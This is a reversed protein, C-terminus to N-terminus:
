PRACIVYAAATVAGTINLGVSWGTPKGGAALATVIRLPIDELSSPALQALRRAADVNLHEPIKWAKAGRRASRPTVRAATSAIM